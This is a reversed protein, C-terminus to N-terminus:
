YFVKDEKLAVEVSNNDEFNVFGSCTEEGKINEFIKVSKVICYNKFFKEVEM